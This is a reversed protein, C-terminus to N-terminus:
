GRYPSVIFGILDVVSEKFMEWYFRTWYHYAYLNIRKKPQSAYAMCLRDMLNFEEESLNRRRYTYAALRQEYTDMPMAMADEFRKEEANLFARGIYYRIGKM